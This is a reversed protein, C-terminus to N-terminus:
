ASAAPRTSASRSPRSGAISRRGSRRRSHTSRKAWAGARSSSIVRSFTVVWDVSFRRSIQQKEVAEAVVQIGLSAAMRIM